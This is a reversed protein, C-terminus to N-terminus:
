IHSFVFGEISGKGPQLKSSEVPLGPWTTWNEHEMGSYPTHSCSQPPSLATRSHLQSQRAPFGSQSGPAEQSDTYPTSSGHLTLKTSVTEEGM